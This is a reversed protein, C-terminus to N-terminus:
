STLFKITIGKYAAYRHINSMTEEPVKKDTTVTIINGDINIRNIQLLNIGEKKLESEIYVHVLEDYPFEDLFVTYTDREIDYEPGHKREKAEIFTTLDCDEELYAYLDDEYSYETINDRIGLADLESLPVRLWSHAPTDVCLYPRLMKASSLKPPPTRPGLRELLEDLGEQYNDEERFDAYYKGKLFGPLEVDDLLIPLVVVRKEDIERNSALDLEKKVCQSNLSTSSIIAAVFDVSDIGNRIKDILSDGVLIETDDIWVTHGADRVDAALRKAFPKDKHSYSIFVSSM